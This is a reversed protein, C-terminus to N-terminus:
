VGNATAATTKHVAGWFERLERCRVAAAAALFAIMGAIVAAIISSLNEVFRMGIIGTLWEGIPQFYILTAIMAAAMVVTAISVKIFAELLTRGGIRLLRKRLLYTLWVTNVTATIATALGFTGSGLPTFIGGIVLLINVGAMCCALVLPAFTEKQSYFARLLIHNCFYATMAICYMQLMFTARETDYATFEGRQYILEILPRATIMMVIGSPIGLFICLRLAQNTTNRLGATDKRAAYRSFLPFVATAISIALVGLPLSYLRGTAYLCRSVGPQLPMFPYDDSASFIIAILQDSLASFQLISLPIMMPAMLKAIRRVEPLIPRLNPMRILGNRALLWIVGIVEIIGTVLLGISIIFFRTTDDGTMTTALWAAIILGINLLSPAFAPYAFHGKCNLAGSGLALLCVPLMFPLMVATFQFMVMREWNGGWIFWAALLGLEILVILASLVLSLLGATNALVLKARQWGNKEAVESFVPVFAASLAGEGFLRRFLNPIQFSAWFKDALEAKGIPVMIMDRVVGLVRSLITLAAMLKAAGFFHEREKHSNDM